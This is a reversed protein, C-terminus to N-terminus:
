TLLKDLKLIRPEPIGWSEASYAVRRVAGSLYALMFAGGYDCHYRPIFAYDYRRRWLHAAAYRIMRMHINILEEKEEHRVHHSWLHWRPGIEFELLEDVYPCELFLEKLAPRAVLTIHAAPANARLQRLFSSMLVADGLRDQKVM